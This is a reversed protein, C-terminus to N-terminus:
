SFLPPKYYKLTYKSISNKGFKRKLRKEITRRHKPVAWLIGDGIIDKLSRSSTQSPIKDYTTPMGALAFALVHLLYCPYDPQITNTYKKICVVPPLCQVELFYQQYYLSWDNCSIQSM